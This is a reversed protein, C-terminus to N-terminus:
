NPFYLDGVGTDLKQPTSPDPSPAAAAPGLPALAAAQSVSPGGPTNGPLALALVLVVAAFAGALAGGYALRRRAHTARGPRQAAIRQRPRDPARVTARADALLAAVRQEPDTPPSPQNPVPADSTLSAAFLRFMGGGSGGNSLM